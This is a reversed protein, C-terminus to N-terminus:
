RSFSSSLLPLLDQYSDTDKDYDESWAIMRVIVLNHKPIIILYQGLYGNANYGLLGENAVEVLVENAARQFESHEFVEPPLIRKLKERLESSQSYAGIVAAASTVLDKNEVRASFLKLSESSIILKRNEPIRWWLYGCSESGQPALAQSLWAEDLLQKGDWQGGQLVLRGLKLLDQPRVQLGSMAHPNGVKDKTWHFKEIELPQFLKEKLYSDLSEKTLKEVVGALLNVAKNNYSFKAGPEDSLEATLALQVFDSAPYIEESTTPLNQLGSTHSLIHHLTISRKQGQKWEPYLESIRLDTNELKGQAVLVGFALSVISKTVSMTEILEPCEPSRYDVLLENDQWVLFADSHSQVAGEQLANLLDESLHEASLSSTLM